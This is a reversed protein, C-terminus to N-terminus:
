DGFEVRGWDEGNYVGYVRMAYSGGSRARYDQVSVLLAAHISITM